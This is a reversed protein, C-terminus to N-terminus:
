TQNPRRHSSSAYHAAEWDEIFARLRLEEGAYRGGMLKFFENAARLTPFTRVASRRASGYLLRGNAGIFAAREDAKADGVQFFYASVRDRVRMSVLTVSTRGEPEFNSRM